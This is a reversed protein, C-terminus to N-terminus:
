QYDQHISGNNSDSAGIWTEGGSEILKKIYLNDASNRIVAM